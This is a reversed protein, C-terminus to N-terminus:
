RKTKKAKRGDSNATGSKLRAAAAQFAEESPMDGQDEDESGRKKGKKGKSKSGSAYKAELHDLFSIQDVQRSKILAALGGEGDDKKGAKTGGKKRFLKEAVGLEEAYAMAEDGEDRAAKMRADKSKQIESTYAKYAQVEGNKIGEEIIERFREEDDLPSSLMVTEYIISWKGKGKRYAELVDDKEEISNKYANSFKEIAEDTIM